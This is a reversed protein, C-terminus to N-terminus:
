HLPVRVTFSVPEGDDRRGVFTLIEVGTLSAPDGPDSSGLRADVSVRQEGGPPVRLNMPQDGPWSNEWLNQVNLRLRDLNVGVSSQNAITVKYEWLFGAKDTPSLEEPRLPRKWVDSVRVVLPAAGEVQIDPPKTLSPVKKSPGCEVSLLTVFLLLVMLKWQPHRM